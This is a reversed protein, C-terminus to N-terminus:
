KTAKIPSVGAAKLAVSVALRAVAAPRKIATVTDIGSAHALAVHRSLYEDKDIGGIRKVETIELENAMAVLDFGSAPQKKAMLIFKVMFAFNM